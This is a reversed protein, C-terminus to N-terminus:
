ERGANEPWLLISRFDITVRTLNAVKMGSFLKILIEIDYPSFWKEGRYGIQDKDTIKKRVIQNLYYGFDQRQFISSMIKLLTTKFRINDKSFIADQPLLQYHNLADILQNELEDKHPSGEWHEMYSMMIYLIKGQRSKLESLKEASILSNEKQSSGEEQMAISLHSFFSIFCFLSSFIIKKYKM